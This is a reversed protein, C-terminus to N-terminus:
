KSISIVVFAFLFVIPIYLFVKKARYWRKYSKIEEKFKIENESNCMMFDIPLHNENGVIFKEYDRHLEKLVSQTIQEKDAELRLMKNLLVNLQQYNSEINSAREKYNKIGLFMTFFTLSLSAILLMKTTNNSSDGESGIVWVSLVLVVLSYFYSTMEYFEHKERLRTSAKIRARRTIDLRRKLENFVDINKVENIKEQEITHIINLNIQNNSDM